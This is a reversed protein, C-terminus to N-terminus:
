EDVDLGDFYKELLNLQNRKRIFDKELDTVESSLEYLKVEMLINWVESKVDDSCDLSEILEDLYDRNMGNFVDM